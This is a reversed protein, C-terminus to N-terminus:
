GGELPIPPVPDTGLRSYMYMDRRTGGVEQWSRLLGERLFGAREATRISATNWPEVYLELRPIRLDRHAWHALAQVALAAARRGRASSVVWYGIDARGQDLNKLWLGVQGAARDTVADAIAFSYGTGHEARSWQREIFRRGEDETFAAPVTTILPIHPDSSAERVADIDGPTFPRLRFPDAALTPVTLAVPMRALM